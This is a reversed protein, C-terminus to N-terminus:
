LGQGISINAKVSNLQNDSPNSSTLVVTISDAATAQLSMKFQLSGQTPTLAPSTYLLTAGNLVTVVISSSVALGSTPTIVNVPPQPYNNAVPGFGQGVGGHTVGNGGLAFGSADGGGAGAGHGSGNGSANDSQAGAGFGLGLGGQGLSLNSGQGIGQMGGSVGDGQDAATGAGFGTAPASPLTAQVQVNYNGTASAIYTLTGPGDQVYNQNLILYNAM